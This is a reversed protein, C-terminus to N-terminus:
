ESRKRKKLSVGTPAHVRFLYVEEEPEPKVELCGENDCESVPGTTETDREKEGKEKEGKEGKKENDSNTTVPMSGNCFPCEYIKLFCFSCVLRHQERGCHTYLLYPKHGGRLVPSDSATQKEGCMRCETEVTSPRQPAGAEIAEM